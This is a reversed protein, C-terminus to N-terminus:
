DPLRADVLPNDADLRRGLTLVIRDIIRRVHDDDDFRVPTLGSKGKREAYVRDARNVMVETVTPDDLLEQIPGFGFFEDMVARTLEARDADSLGAGGEAHAEAAGRGVERGGEDGPPPPA